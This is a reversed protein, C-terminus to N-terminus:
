EPAKPLPSLARAPWATSAGDVAAHVAATARTTNGVADAAAAGPMSDDLERDLRDTVLMRGPAHTIFFETGAAELAVQATLGCGWYLPVEGELPTLVEGWDPRALDAIGLADPVGEHLPAGHVRSFRGTIARVTAISARAFPRMSVVLPSGGFRGARATPRDTRFLGGQIGLELHRLRVGARRLADEMSFWCGIALTVFDARWLARLDRVTETPRGRRHVLYRPLDTRLDLETALVPLTVAGPESVGLVPCAAANARCFNLLEEAEAAPLVVINAQVYGPAHGTTLGLHRGARVDARLQRATAVHM